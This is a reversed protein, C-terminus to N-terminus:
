NENQIEDIREWDDETGEPTPALQAQQQKTAQRQQVQQQLPLQQQEISGKAERMMGFRDGQQLEPLNPNRSQRRFPYPPRRREGPQAHMSAFSEIAQRREQSPNEHFTHIGSLGFSDYSPRRERLTPAEEIEIDTDSPGGCCNVIADTIRQLAGKKPVAHGTAEEEELIPFPEAAWVAAVAAALFALSIANALILALAPKM